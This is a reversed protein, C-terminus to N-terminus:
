ADEKPTDPPAPLPQWHTIYQAGGLIDKELLYGECWWGPGSHGRAAESDTPERWRCMGPNSTILLTGDRETASTEVPFASGGDKLGDLTM